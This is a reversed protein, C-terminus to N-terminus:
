EVDAPSGQLPYEREARYLPEGRGLHSSFLTFSMVTM